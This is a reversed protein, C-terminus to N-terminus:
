PSFLTVKNNFRHIEDIFVITRKNPNYRAMRLIDRMEAVNSLVANIRVFDSQTEAAIVEAISTKGCGPPGYFILSGFHNDQILRPLLCGTGVIHDQGVIESLHQPRMRVALPGRVVSPAAVKASDFFDAQESKVAMSILISIISCGQLDSCLRGFQLLPEM